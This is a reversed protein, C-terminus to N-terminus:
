GQAYKWPHRELKDYPIAKKMRFCEALIKTEIEADHLATHSEIFEHQGSVYRFATEATTRLNGAESVWGLAHALTRYGSQSLKTMCAFLWIDLMQYGGKRAPLLKAGLKGGTKTLAGKDFALNYACIVSVDHQVILAQVEQVIQAWPKIEIDGNQLMPAYHTFLKKAYFAGMMQNADTFVESVLANYKALVQGRKDHIVLGLDYVFNRPPLSCTETDLTLFVKRNAM